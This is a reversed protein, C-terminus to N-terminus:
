EEEGSKHQRPFILTLMEMAVDDKGEFHETYVRKAEDGVYIMGTDTIVVGGQLLYWGEHEFVAHSFVVNVGGINKVENEYPILSKKNEYAYGDVVDLACVDHLKINDPNVYNGSVDVLMAQVPYDMGILLGKEVDICYGTFGHNNTFGRLNLYTLDDELTVIIGDNAYLLGM